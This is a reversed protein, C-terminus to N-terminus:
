SWVNKPKGQIMSITNSIWGKKMQTNVEHSGVNSSCPSIHFNELGDLKNLYNKKAWIPSGYNMECSYGLINKNRLGNKVAEPNVIADTALNVLIIDNSLKILKEDILDVNSGGSALVVPVHISIVKCTKFIETISDAGKERNIDNKLVKMGLCELKKAVRAGIAGCGVVGAYQGNLRIGRCSSDKKVYDLHRGKAHLLIESIASESVNDAVACNDYDNPVSQFVINPCYKKGLIPNFYDLDSMDVNMSKLTKVSPHKWFDDGIREIRDESSKM